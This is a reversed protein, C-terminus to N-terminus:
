EFVTGYAAADSVGNGRGNKVAQSSGWRSQGSYFHPSTFLVSYHASSRYPRKFSDGRPVGSQHGGVGHQDLARRRSQRKGTSSELSGAGSSRPRITLTKETLRFPKYCFTRRSEKLGTPRLRKSGEIKRVITPEPKPANSNSVAGSLAKCSMM